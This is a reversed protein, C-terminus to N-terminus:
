DLVMLHESGVVPVFLWEGTPDTAPRASPGTLRCRSDELFGPGGAFLSAVHLANDRAAPSEISV